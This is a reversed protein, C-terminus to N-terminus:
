RNRAREAHIQALLKDTDKQLQGYLKLETEFFDTYWWYKRLLKRTAPDYFVSPDNDVNPLVFTDSLQQDHRLVAVIQRLTGDVDRLSHITSVDLLDFGGGQLLGSVDSPDYDSRWDFTHLRPMAGAEVQQIFEDRGKKLDAAERRSEVALDSYSRDLWDLFQERRQREQQHVQYGNLLFAAYVGVFVTLLEAAKRVLFAAPRFHPVLAM